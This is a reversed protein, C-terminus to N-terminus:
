RQFEPTKRAIRKLDPLVQREGADDDFNKISFRYESQYFFGALV